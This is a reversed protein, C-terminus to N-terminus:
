ISERSHWLSSPIPYSKNQGTNSAWDSIRRSLFFPIIHAVPEVTDPSSSPTSSGLLSTVLITLGCDCLEKRVPDTCIYVCLACSVSSAFPQCNSSFLISQKEREGFVFVRAGKPHDLFCISQTHERSAKSQWKVTSISAARRCLSSGATTALDVAAHTRVLPSVWFSPTPKTTHQLKRIFWPTDFPHVM